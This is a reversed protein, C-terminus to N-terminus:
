RVPRDRCSQPQSNARHAWDCIEVVVDVKADSQVEVHRGGDTEVLRIHIEKPGSDNGGARSLTVNPSEPNLGYLSGNIADVVLGIMGTFFGDAFATGIGVDPRLEVTAPTYGPSTLTLTYQHKRELTLTAPTISSDSGPAVHLSAGSPISQVTVLQRPGHMITGCGFLSLLTVLALSCHRNRM